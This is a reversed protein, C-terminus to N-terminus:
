ASRAVLWGVCCSVVFKAVGTSGLASKDFGVLDGKPLRDFVFVFVFASSRNVVGDVSVSTM